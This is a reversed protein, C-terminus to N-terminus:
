AAQVVARDDQLRSSVHELASGHQSVAAMVIGRDDKLFDAAYGLATGNQTVAALVFERESRLAAPAYSLASDDNRLAELLLEREESDDGEACVDTSILDTDELASPQIIEPGITCEPRDQSQTCTCACCVPRWTLM